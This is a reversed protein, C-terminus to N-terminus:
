LPLPTRPASAPPNAPSTEYSLAAVSALALCIGTTERAGIKEHLFLIAIPVSVVPYLATLPTIISAKGQSAFAALIAFNGLAFFFGLAIVLLWTKPAIQPPLPERALLLIAVPIFAALFWFTSLEGSIHNTSLKQLFGAVGWLAIPALAYALSISLLGAEQQVNFLYMAALSLLVGGLQVRNLREKLLLVALAITVLPYLAALPVITAAKGGRNFIEYYAINGACALAGGALAHLIGRRSQGRRAALKGSVGLALLVPLIGITSLAQYHASSLADGILKALISWVGWSLLALV